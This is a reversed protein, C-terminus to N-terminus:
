NEFIFNGFLCLLYFWTRFILNLPIQIIRNIQFNRRFIECDFIPALSFGAYSIMYSPQIGLFKLIKMKLGLNDNKQPFIVFIIVLTFEQIKM